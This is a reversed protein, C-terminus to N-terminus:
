RHDIREPQPAPAEPAKFPNVFNARLPLQRATARVVIAKDNIEVIQSRHVLLSTDTIGRLGGRRVTLQQIVFSKADLTYDEVKGLKHRMEDIVHMGILGFGLEYLQQLKIVDDLAVFEDSSDVIMGIPALERIDATRLYSPHIDLLPGTVEYAMIKLNAPDIIPLAAEALKAGTQLSLVPTGIIRSGLILM